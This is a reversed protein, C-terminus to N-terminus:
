KTGRDTGTKAAWPGEIVTEGAEPLWGLRASRVASEVEPTAVQRYHRAATAPTHGLLAAEVDPAVGSRYLDNTAKRRFAGVNFRPVGAKDCAAELYRQITLVTGASVCSLVREDDGGPGCDRLARVVPPAIPVTRRPARGDRNRKGNVTLAARDLDVDGWRLDAIEHRRCGTGNLLIVALATWRMGGRTRRGDTELLVALVRAVEQSTPTYRNTYKGTSSMERVTPAAPTPAAVRGIQIAWRWAQRLVYLERRVTSSATGGRLRLNRHRELASTTCQAIQVDGLTGVLARARHRDAAITKESLGPEDERSAIWHELLDLVTRFEGARRESLTPDSVHRALTEDLEALTMWGTHITVERGDM